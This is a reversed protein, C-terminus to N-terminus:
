GYLVKELVKLSLILIVTLLLYLLLHNNAKKHEVSAPVNTPILAMLRDQNNKLEAVMQRIDAENKDFRQILRQQSEELEKIVVEHSKKRRRTSIRHLIIFFLLLVTGWLCIGMIITGVWGALKTNINEYLTDVKKQTEQSTATNEKIAYILGDIGQGIDPGTENTQATAAAALLLIITATIAHKRM